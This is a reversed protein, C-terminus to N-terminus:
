SPFLAVRTFNIASCAGLCASSLVVFAFRPYCVAILVCRLKKLLRHCEARWCDLLGVTWCDLLGVTWCDLLGVTWCDLLGVTWCDLM